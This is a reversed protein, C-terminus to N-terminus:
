YNNKPTAKPYLTRVYERQEKPSSINEAALLDKIPAEEVDVVLSNLYPVASEEVVKQPSSHLHVCSPTTTHISLYRVQILPPKAFLREILGSLSSIVVSESM